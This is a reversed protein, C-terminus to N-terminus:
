FLKKFAINKAILFDMIQFTDNSNLIKKANEDSDCFILFLNIEEEKLKLTNTLFYVGFQRQVKDIFIEDSVFPVKDKDKKKFLGAVMKSVKIFDFGM